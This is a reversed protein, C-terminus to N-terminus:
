KIKALTEPDTTFSVVPGGLYFEGMKWNKDAFQFYRIHRFGIKHLLGQFNEITRIPIRDNAIVFVTTNGGQPDQQPLDLEDIMMHLPVRKGNVKYVTKKSVPEILVAINYKTKAFAQMASAAVVLAVIISCVINYYMKMTM